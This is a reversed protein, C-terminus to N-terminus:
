FTLDVSLWFSRSPPYPAVDVNRGIAQAGFNSVEPDLGTYDTFRLLNRGSLSIRMGEIGDWLRAAADSPVEYTLTLERLKVFSADEVWITSTRGPYLRLRQEGLTENDVCAEVCPDNFDGSTRSLDFLWATLNIVDGGHQWDWLSYINFDGFSFENSFGMRFDPNADGIGTVIRTGAATGPDCPGGVVCRPDNAVVTDRGVIQTPSRGEEIQFGGLATGFGGAAFPPVPLEVVESRDLSFTTTSTWQFGSTQVPVVRLSSEIGRTELVGGNFISTAYGTSPPLARRLLLETIRREYATVELQATRNLLTADFGVEVERQREPHLDEAVTTTSINLTQLGAINGTNLVSFKDGYRPQNGTQGWAGRVKLEDVMGPALDVFRYAAAFKPYLFFEGPDANNSSKDARLGAVLTLREDLLLLEEQAFFGLDRTRSRTQFVGPNTGQDINSQGVILDENLIRAVDLDVDEYQIGLSTTASLGEGFGYRHVLNGTVNLNRNSSNGLFTTGAKGDDLEYQLDPPSFINNKLSFFDVGGTAVLQLSQNDGSWLDATFDTSAIMRWVEEDNLARGATELPNSNAFPNDPYEGDAGPRIDVFTPTQPFTMWYSISRNDNNTFGRGTKSRILNTNLGLTAWSGLNQDLNLRLSQKDYYTGTIIGGDHKLLASAFYRTNGSGGSVSAATEYSLPNNGALEEEHDYVQGPVFFDAARPGFAEVAEDVNDFVRLGLKNALDFTGVRQTFSYRPAGERGQKTTIVIVGNSAKSGYIAAASGGKLIEISEIDNPNLDAIRNPANDQNSAFGSNFAGGSARTIVNTGSAISADSVIVGDIVYLPTAAGIISTVGRLNIQMGGGPAGSNAQIDAGAVKGALQQEVSAAPVQTLEEASVSAVANALNRRAVSTVQGTVVLEDLRLADQGLQIVVTSQNEGVEVTATQWGLLSAQLRVPGSPVNLVFRGERDTFTGVRNNGVLQVAVDQLPQAGSEAVVQGRVERQQAHLPLPVILALLLGLRIPVRSM